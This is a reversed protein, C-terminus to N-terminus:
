LKVQCRVRIPRSLNNTRQKNVFIQCTVHGEDTLNLLTIVLVDGARMNHFTRSWKKGTEFTDDKDRPVRITIRQEEATGDAVLKVVYRARSSAGNQPSECKVASLLVMVLVCGLSVVLRGVGM